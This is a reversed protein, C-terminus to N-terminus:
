KGRSVRRQAAALLDEVAAQTEHDLRPKRPVDLLRQLRAQVRDQMSPQGDEAWAERTRRDFLTPYWFENRCHRLTHETSLFNGGPGVHAIGDVALTEPSVEIGRAIRGAYGVAEDMMVLLQLSGTLCGEMFGVNHILDAGSLAAVVIGMAGEMAAQDDLVKADSVGATSWMPLGLHHAVETEAACLLALEPAGYPMTACRMDMTGLSGGVVFRAGPSVTQALVLAALWEATAVVLTSALTGPTTAGCMPCPGFVYPIGQTACYLLQDAVEAPIILPSISCGLFFYHPRKSLEHRGGAVIAAIEHIDRCGQVTNAWAMVPKVTHAVLTAFEYLEVLEPDVDSITGMAAVYDIHPLEDCVVAVSVADDRYFQRRQGSYPDLFHTATISPGYHVRNGGIRLRAPADGRSHLTFSAPATRRAEEIADAPLYVREGDWEAGAQRLVECARPSQILIGTEALVRLAGQYVQRQQASSLVQLQAAANM